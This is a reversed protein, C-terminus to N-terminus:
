LPALLLFPNAIANVPLLAPLVSAVFSKSILNVLTFSLLTVSAASFAPVVVPVVFPIAPIKTFVLSAFSVTVLLPLM